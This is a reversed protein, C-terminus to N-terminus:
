NLRADFSLEVKETNGTEVSVDGGISGSVGAPVEERRLSEIDVQAALPLPLPLVAILLAGLDRRETRGSRLLIM